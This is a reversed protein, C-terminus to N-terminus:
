ITEESEIRRIIALLEEDYKIWIELMNRVNDAIDEQMCRRNIEIDTNIKFKLDELNIKKM